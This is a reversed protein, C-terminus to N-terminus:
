SELVELDGSKYIRWWYENINREHPRPILTQSSLSSLILSLGPQREPLVKTKLSTKLNSKEEAKVKGNWRMCVLTGAHSGNKWRRMEFTIPDKLLPPIKSCQENTHHKFRPYSRVMQYTVEDDGNYITIMGEFRRTKIRVERLFPEGFIVDGMGEDRYADMNELVAFDTVVSFTGVFIPVNMLAGIVNNGKYVMKDKMISNHFKKSMVNVYLLPFFNAHTFEFGIMCSFKLNHACDIHIKKDYDCYSPYDDIGADLEDDRTRFEEIVEGEEITPMLDDGQNRRLEFPENLDNLEIYDEFFPDLSRNLVLTEGMLRAELDLEMRERLSLMYVRKILSSAPKISTFVIRKEGVRLTIKRKYVDIKARAISLFPRGLILPVKIDEPMDLIIFDLPFVFKGIGVLVNEAIGKPYKVTRGVLEVTLKTHALEGLGLNLYTSLPMVSVSAGLDVLANDFCVNNIFCPLTFSGLDKEKQTFYTFPTNPPDLVAYRAHILMSMKGIQIELTKISAGQNRLAANLTDEMSKRQEQYLPNANNMQHFGPAAARYGGGQFPRGFQTYYAEKLTKGEEKLPCDKTYHLGKCQKFGVQVVYVKENVKKIERGLNNLQAQITALGDSGKTSRSRSTGNHWKKYYEAM